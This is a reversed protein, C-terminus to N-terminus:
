VTLKLPTALTVRHVDSLVMFDGGRGNRSRWTRFDDNQVEYRYAQVTAADEEVWKDDLQVDWRLQLSREVGSFGWFGLPQSFFTGDNFDYSDRLYFGLEGVTVAHSGKADTTVTASAAVNLQAEGMAGYFDDLPDSMSGLTLFNVQCSDNLAKTPRNLNGFQWTSNAKGIGQSAIRRKLLALGAPSHWHNRLASVAAQVRPFSLAWSMRVTTEDLQAQTLTGLPVIGNKVNDPLAYAPYAFWRSMM